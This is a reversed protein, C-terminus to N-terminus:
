RLSGLYAVVAELGGADLADFEPMLNGPKVHQGSAVWRAVSATDNPLIGAGVSIRSAFHTLDPGREGAAPTGRVTHCSACHEGFLAVGRGSAAAAQPRRQSERWSEFRASDEAVVFLAMLAHPGGCYEACQGRFTGPAEASIRLRNERGPILDLKGALAPVWFSHLVDASRLRVEVIAGAPIRIENATIFDLAGNADLYRVQWWWQHGVLEIALDPRGVLPLRTDKAFSYALLAALTVAPFVVGGAVVLWHRALRPRPARLALAVLVLVVLFVVAGGVVLVGTLDLIGAAEAGHPSLASQHAPPLAM